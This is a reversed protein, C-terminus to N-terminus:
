QNSDSYGLFYTAHFFRYWNAAEKLADFDPDPLNKEARMLKLKEAYYRKKVTLMSEMIEVKRRELALMGQFYQNQTITTPRSTATASRSPGAKPATPQQEDGDVDSAEDLSDRSTADHQDHLVAEGSSFGGEIGSIVFAYIHLGIFSYDYDCFNSAHAIWSFFNWYLFARIGSIFSKCLKPM